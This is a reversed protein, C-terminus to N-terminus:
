QQEKKKKSSRTVSRIILVLGAALLAYFFIQGIAYGIRYEDSGSDSERSYQKRNNIPVTCRFSNLFQDRQSVYQGVAEKMVTFSLGLAYGNLYIYRVTIQLDSQYNNFDIAAEVGDLGDIIFSRKKILRGGIKSISGTLMEEYVKTLETKKFRLNLRADPNNMGDIIMVNCSFSDAMYSYIKQGLTDITIPKDPFDITALGQLNQTYPQQARLAPIAFVSLLFFLLSKM